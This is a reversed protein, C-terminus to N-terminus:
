RIIQFRIYLYMRTAWSVMLLQMCSMAAWHFIHDRNQLFTVAPRIREGVWPGLTNSDAFSYVGLGFSVLAGPLVFYKSYTPIQILAVGAAGGIGWGVFLVCWRMRERDLEARFIKAIVLSVLGVCFCVLAIVASSVLLMDGRYDDSDGEAVVIGTLAFGLLISCFHWVALAAAFVPRRAALRALHSIGHRSTTGGRDGGDGGDSSNMTGLVLPDGSSRRKWVLANLVLALVTVTGPTLAFVFYPPFLYLLGVGAENDLFSPSVSEPNGVYLVGVIALWLSIGMTELAWFLRWRQRTTRLFHMM